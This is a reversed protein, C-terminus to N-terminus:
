NFTASFAVALGVANWRPSDIGVTTEKARMSAAMFQLAVGLGWNDSVFWEKGVTLDIGLGPDTFSNDSFSDNTHDDFSLQTIVLAGSLYVNAPMIYYALGGGLGGVSVSADQISEAAVGGVELDPNTASNVVLEGFLILNDRIAGGIALSLDPGVGSVKLSNGGSSTKASMFGPGLQMRLYFGDHRQAGPPRALVYQGPYPYGSANPAPYQGAYPPPPYPGQPPPPPYNPPPQPTPYNPPPQPTPYNPPPQPTPAQEAASARWSGLILVAVCSGTRLM